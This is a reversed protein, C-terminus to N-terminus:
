KPLTEIYKIHVKQLKNLLDGANRLPLETSFEEIKGARLNRDRFRVVSQPEFEVSAHAVYNRLHRIYDVGGIDKTYTTNTNLAKSAIWDNISSYDSAYTNGVLEKPVVLMAYLAMLLSGQNDVGVTRLAEKVWPAGFPLKEFYDSTLFANKKLELALCCSIYTQVVLNQEQNMM